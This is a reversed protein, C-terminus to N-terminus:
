ILPEVSAITEGGAKSSNMILESDGELVAETLDLEQGFELARAAAIAEIEAPQLAPSLSQSLSVLIASTHDRVVVGIGSSNEDKFIAGDFNIKVLNADPPKWRVKPKLAAPLIPPILCAITYIIIICKDNCVGKFDHKIYITHM